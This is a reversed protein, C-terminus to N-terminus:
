PTGAAWFLDDPLKADPVFRLSSGQQLRRVFRKGATAGLLRGTVGKLASPLPLFTDGLFVNVMRNIYHFAVATGIIEPAEHPAFPPPPVGNANSTGKALVWQVLAHLQEDHIRDYDGRLIASAADHNSTAHLLSTHADVCFPCTNTKSVTAAVVEKRSRDVNGALLTERLISWVGAMVEPLPSHLTLLPIPLFDAQMQQYVEATVGAAIGYPAAKVYQITQAMREIITEAIM